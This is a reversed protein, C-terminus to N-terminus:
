QVSRREYEEVIKGDKLRVVRTAKVALDSNHTAMLVGKGEKSLDLLIGAVLEANESDLNGTPEDALIYESRSVIARAIAVRQQEELDEIRKSIASNVAKFLEIRANRLHVL